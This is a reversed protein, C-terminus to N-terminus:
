DDDPAMRYGRSELIVGIRAYARLMESERETRETPSERRHGCMFVPKNCLNCWGCYWHGPEGAKECNVRDLDDDQPTRGTATQFQEATIM